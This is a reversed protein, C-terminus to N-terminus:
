GPTCTATGGTPAFTTATLKWGPTNVPRGSSSLHDPRPRARRLRRRAPVGLLFPAPRLGHHAALYGTATIAVAAYGALPDLPLRRLHALDGVRALGALGHAASVGARRAGDLVARDTPHPLPGDLHWPSARVAAALVTALPYGLRRPLTVLLRGGPDLREALGSLTKPIDAFHHVTEKIVIADLRDYPLGVEGAAVAEAPACV